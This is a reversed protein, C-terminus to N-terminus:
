NSRFLYSYSNINMLMWNQWPFIHMQLYIKIDHKLINCRGLDLDSKSFVDVSRRLLDKAAKEM